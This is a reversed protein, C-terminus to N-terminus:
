ESATLVPLTNALAPPTSSALRRFLLAALFALSAISLLVPSYGLRVIMAGVLSSAIIQSGASIFFTYSSAGSRDAAPVRDMLLGYVGPENMCQAAMYGWYLLGASSASHFTALAFLMGATSLQSVMIGNQLGAVRFLVPAFLIAGFSVLQSLSFINGAAELSLGLHHVFFISAFPPFAGTVLSWVAMAPLFQRLFSTSPRHIRTSTGSKALSLRSLPLLSLMAVAITFILTFREARPLSLHSPDLSHFFGPLRGSAFAGLGAVGIGSAFTISFATARQRASTLSAVAPSLCVGWVCLGAGGLVAFPMQASFSVFLVRLVSAVSALAIGCLLTPRIGFRTAAVGAPITGCLNGVAMASGIIGLAREDYGFGLLYLNFLFFFVSFGFNFFLAGTFYIWFQGGPLSRKRWVKMRRRLRGTM